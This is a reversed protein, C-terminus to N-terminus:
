GLSPDGEPGVTVGRASWTGSAGFIASEGARLYLGTLVWNARAPVPVVRTGYPGDPGVDVVVEYPPEPAPPGADPADAPVDPAGVDPPGADPTAGGDPACALLLWALLLSRLM